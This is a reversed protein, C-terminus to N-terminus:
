HQIDSPCPDYHPHEARPTRMGGCQYVSPTGDCGLRLVPCLGPPDDPLDSVVLRGADQAFPLPRETGLLRAERVRCELGAIVAQRGPWRRLWQYLANERVTLPGHHNWDGRNAGRTRLDFGFPEVDYVAEGNRALWAGVEELIGVSEEPISGDGRPGINLLLNGRGQAACSLLDIVAAPSKWDRDGAHFGWSNNLTMCGEWPRWPRPASMHGEPTAFDGPLGNRGNFLVGPVISRVMANMEEARWGEADFPWWGDYWMVDFPRFRGALERLREFTATLFAERARGDELADVADPRDRWNNLSHYLGTKLGRRRAAAVIERTLDRRAPSRASSFDSLASDYLRFGDHHMTTFVVYRMGARVALDCIADADFKAADFRGALREYEGRPIQERNMVWEGRGPLSYLGYHVFLGFRANEFWDTREKGTVNM